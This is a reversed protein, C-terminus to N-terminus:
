EDEFYDLDIRKIEYVIKNTVGVNHQIMLEALKKGNIKAIKVNSPNYEYAEKTFDSTTIFVGKRGSQGALAGVFSQLEKRGVNNGIQWRKAQIHVKEFGLKDEDIIGDIGGDGSRGTIKGEGYGMRMLLDVVLREFFHPNQQMVKNIVDEELNTNLYKFNRDITEEPTISKDQGADTNETISQEAQSNLGIFSAFKPIQMLDRTNLTQPNKNLLNIGDKSLSYVGRSVNDILGAKSLYFKAWGVRNMIITQKKSPLLEVKEEDTLHFADSIHATCESLKCRGKDKLLMLLPLMCEQYSPIM